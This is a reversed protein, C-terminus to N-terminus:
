KPTVKWTTTDFTFDSFLESSSIIKVNGHRAEKDFNYVRYIFASDGYEEFFRRENESMFFPQNFDGSTTKVEIYRPSGDDNISSIDYGLGDGQLRSLHQVNQMAKARELSLTEILRDIEFELVFEEGQDGIENNRDRVKEWDVKRGIFRKTKEKITTVENPQIVKNSIPNLLSFKAPRYNKDVIFGEDYVKVKEGQHAVINGIRQIILTENRTKSKINDEADFTLVTHLLNKVESTNLEGYVTLLPKIARRIQAETHAM